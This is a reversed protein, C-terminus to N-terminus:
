LDNVINFVSDLGTLKFTKMLSDNVNYLVLGDLKSMDMEAQMLTRIGASSCYCVDELDIIMKRIGKANQMIYESLEQAEYYYLDSYPKIEITENKIMHEIKM